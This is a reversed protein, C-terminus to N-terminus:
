EAMLKVRNVESRTSEASWERVPDLISVSKGQITTYLLSCAVSTDRVCVISDISIKRIVYEKNCDTSNGWPDSAILTIPVSKGPYHCQWMRLRYVEGAIQVKVNGGCNDTITYSGTPLQAYEFCTVTDTSCSIAPPAKDEVCLKGWTINGTNMRHSQMGHLIGSPQSGTQGNGRIPIPESRIFWNLM